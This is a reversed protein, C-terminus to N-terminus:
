EEYQGETRHSVADATEFAMAPCIRCVLFERRQVGQAPANKIGLIIKVDPPLTFKLYNATEFKQM